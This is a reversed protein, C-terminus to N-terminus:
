NQIFLYNINLAPDVSISLCSVKVAWDVMRFIPYLTLQNKVALHVM